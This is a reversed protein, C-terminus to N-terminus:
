GQRLRAARGVLQHRAADSAERADRAGRVDRLPAPLAAAAQRPGARTDGRPHGAARHVRQRGAAARLLFQPNDVFSTHKRDGGANGDGWEGVMASGWFRFESSGALSSSTQQNRQMSSSLARAMSALLEFRIADYRPHLALTTLCAPVESILNVLALAALEAIQTDHMQAFLLQSYVQIAQLRQLEQQIGANNQTMRGLLQLTEKILYEDHTPSCFSLLLPVGQYKRLLDKCPDYGNALEAMAMVVVRQLRQRPMAMQSQEQLVAFVQTSIGQEFFAERNAPSDQAAAAIAVCANEKDDPDSSQLLALLYRLRVEGDGDTGMAYEFFKQRGAADLVCPLTRAVITAYPANQGRPRLYEVMQDVGGMDQFLTRNASELDTLARLDNCASLVPLTDLIRAVAEPDARRSRKAHREMRAEVKSIMAEASDYQSHDGQLQDRLKAPGEAAARQEAEAAMKELQARMTELEAEQQRKAELAAEAEAQIAAVRAQENRAREIEAEQAEREAHLRAMQKQLEANQEATSSEMQQRLQDEKALAEERKALESQLEEERRKTEAEKEELARQQAALQAEMAAAREEIERRKQAEAEEVEERVRQEEVSAATDATRLRDKLRAEIEEQQAIERELARQEQENEAVAKIRELAAARRRAEIAEAREQASLGALAAEDLGEDATAAELEAKERIREQLQERLQEIESAAEKLDDNLADKNVEIHKAILFTPVDGGAVSARKEAEELKEKLQENESQLDSIEQMQEKIVARMEAQEKELKNANPNVTMSLCSQGFRLCATGENVQERSNSLALIIHLMNNGGLGKALMMTLKSERYPIHTAGEALCKVTLALKGLSLNIKIGEKANKGQAGTKKMGESGALDVLNLQAFSKGKQETWAVNLQLLAHSRSSAENMKTSATARMGCGLDYARQADAADKCVHRVAEKCQYGGSPDMSVDVVKRQGLLDQLQENYLEIFQISVEFSKISADEKFRAFVQEFLRPILGPHTYQGTDKDKAGEMSFTKGSGTQGYALITSNYGQRLSNLAVDGVSEFVEEQRSDMGFVRDFTFRSIDAGEEKRYELATGDVINFLEPQGADRGFMPRLRAYVRPRTAKAAKGMDSPSRRRCCRHCLLSSRRQDFASLALWGAVGSHQVTGERLWEGERLCAVVVTAPFWAGTDLYRPVTTSTSTGRAVTCYLEVLDRYRHKSHTDM